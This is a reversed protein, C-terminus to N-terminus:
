PLDPLEWPLWILEKIQDITRKISLYGAAANGNGNIAYLKLWLKDRNQIQDADYHCSSCLLATVNAQNALRRAEEHAVTRHRPIIHHRETAPAVGCMDCLPDGNRNRRRLRVMQSKIIADLNTM